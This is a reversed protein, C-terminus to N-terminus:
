PCCANNDEPLAPFNNMWIGIPASHPPNFQRNKQVWNACYGLAENAETQCQRRKKPDCPYQERCREYRMDHSMCCTDMIDVPSAYSNSMNPDYMGNRGGTWNPGCWNGWLQSLGLPDIWKIPNGGVYAYTNLGGELGIPDSEIYRGTAPDYGRFYNYHLGTESDFYQGPFTEGSTSRLSLLPKEKHTGASLRPNEWVLRLKPRKQGIRPKPGAFASESLSTQRNRTRRRDRRSPTHQLPKLALAASV